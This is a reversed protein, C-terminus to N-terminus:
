VSKNKLEFVDKRAYHGVPDFDMRAMSLLDMNLDAYIIEEKGWVPGAITEGLPDIIVSGGNSLVQPLKDIDEGPLDTPYDDRTVFQNASLVFCRGELAIHKMTHQWSIRQDATPAMYIDVGQQYVWSRALPMYNEWCILGGLKGITTDYTMLDSGDGEGWIIREAATPKLKRHKGILKGNPSFYLMTCYLTGSAVKEIVGIVLYAKAKKAIKALAICEDGPVEISNEVYRLWMERGEQSRDGVVTGFSLGRPYAPIYAEPFLILAPSQASAEEVKDAIKQLTKFKDFLVPASQVVAAKIKM